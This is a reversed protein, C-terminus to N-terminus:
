PGAPTTNTARSRRQICGRQQACAEPACYTSAHRRGFLLTSMCFAQPRLGLVLFSGLTDVALEAPGGPVEFNPAAQEWNCWFSGYPCFQLSSHTALVRPFGLPCFTFAFVSILMFLADFLHTYRYVCIHKYMYIYICIIHVHITRKPYTYM